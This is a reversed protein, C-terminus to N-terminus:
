ITADIELITPPGFNMQGAAQSGRDDIFSCKFDIIYHYVNTHTEDQYEAVKMLGSCATPEYGALLTIVQDRFDFIAINQELTGDGADLEIAGLHIKFTVDSTTIGCGLQDYSDPMAVEVFACPFPFSYTQGQEYQKLQSSWLSAYLNSGDANVITQLRNLIDLIPQKIGAM